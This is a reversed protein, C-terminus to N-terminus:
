IMVVSDLGSSSIVLEGAITIDGQHGILGLNILSGATENCMGDPWGMGRAQARKIALLANLQSQTIVFQVTVLNM